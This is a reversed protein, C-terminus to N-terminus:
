YQRFAGRTPLNYITGGVAVIGKENGNWKGDGNEDNWSDTYREKGDVFSSVMYKGGFVSSLNNKNLKKAFLNKSKEISKRM